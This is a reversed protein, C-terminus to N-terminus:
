TTVTPLQWDKGPMPTSGPALELWTLPNSGTHEWSSVLKRPSEMSSWPTRCPLSCLSAGTLHVCLGAARPVCLVCCPGSTWPLWLWGGGQLLPAGLVQCPTLLMEVGPDAWPQHSSNWLDGPLGLWGQVQRAGFSLGSCCQFTHVLPLHEPRATSVM